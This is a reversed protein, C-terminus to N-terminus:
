LDALDDLDFSTSPDPANLPEPKRPGHHPLNRHHLRGGCTARRCHLRRDTRFPCGGVKHTAFGCFTCLAAKIIAKATQKISATTCKRTPHDGRCTACRASQDAQNEAAYAAALRAQRNNKQIERTADLVNLVASIHDKPIEM